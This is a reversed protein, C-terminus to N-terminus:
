RAAPRYTLLVNGSRFTTTRWLDLPLRKGLTSFFSHGAGLLISNVLIRLEDILGRERRPREDFRFRNRLALM